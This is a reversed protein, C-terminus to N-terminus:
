TIIQNQRILDLKSEFNRPIADKFLRNKQYNSFSNDSFHDQCIKTHKTIKYNTLGCAIIWANQRSFYYM